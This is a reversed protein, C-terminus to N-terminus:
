NKSYKKNFLKNIVRSGCKIPELSGCKIPELALRANTL